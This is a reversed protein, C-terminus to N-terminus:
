ILNLKRLLEKKYQEGIPIPHKDLYATGEEIADVQDLSVLYSRHLRYFRGFPLKEELGRLTIHVTFRKSKTYINVYDGAAQVYNIDDVKIKTLISNARVFIYDPKPSHYNTFNENSSIALRDKVKILASTLRQMDVPKVIYDVFYYDFAEPAFEKHATVAIVLPKYSLQKLLEIGSLENLEMDLFILDPKETDLVNLYEQNNQPLKIESLFDFKAILKSLIEAAIPDDEAIAFKM